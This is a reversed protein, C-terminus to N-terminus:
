ASSLKNLSVSPSFALEAAITGPHVTPLAGCRIDAICLSERPTECSMAAAPRQHSASLCTHCAHSPQAGIFALGITSEPGSITTRYLRCSQKQEKRRQSGSISSLGGNSLACLWDPVGFLPLTLKASRRCAGPQGLAMVLACLKRDQSGLSHTPDAELAM